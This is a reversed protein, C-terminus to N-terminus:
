RSADECKPRCSCSGSSFFRIVPFPFPVMRNCHSILVSFHKLMEAM